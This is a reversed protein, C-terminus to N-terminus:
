RVDLGHREGTRAGEADRKRGTTRRRNVWCPVIGCTSAPHRWGGGPLVLGRDLGPEPATRPPASRWRCERAFASESFSRAQLRPEDPHARVDRGTEAHIRLRGHECAFSLLRSRERPRAQRHRPARGSRTGPAALVRRSLRGSTAPAPAGARTPLGVVSVKRQYFGNAMGSSRRGVCTQREGDFAGSLATGLLEGACSAPLRLVTVQRPAAHGGFPISDFPDMTASSESHCPFPIPFATGLRGSCGPRPRKAAEIPSCPLRREGCRGVCGGPGARFLPM